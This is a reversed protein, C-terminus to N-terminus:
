RGIRTSCKEHRRSLKDARHKTGIPSNACRPAYVIPKTETTPSRSFSLRENRRARGHGAISRDDLRDAVCPHPGAVLEDQFDQSSLARMLGARVIGEEFLLDATLCEERLRSSFDERSGYERRSGHEVHLIRGQTVALWMHGALSSTPHLGLHTLTSKSM